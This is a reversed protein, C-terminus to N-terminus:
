NIGKLKLFEERWTQYQIGTFGNPTELKKKNMFRKWSRALKKQLEPTIETKLM